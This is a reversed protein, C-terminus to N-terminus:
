CAPTPAGSEAYEGTTTLRCLFAAMQARSVTAEPAYVGPSVGTTVGTDALWAVAESFWRSRFLM